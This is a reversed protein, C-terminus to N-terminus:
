KLSDISVHTISATYKSVIPLLRIQEIRKSPVLNSDQEPLQLFAGIPNSSRCRSLIAVLRLSNGAGCYGREKRLVEGFAEGVSSM